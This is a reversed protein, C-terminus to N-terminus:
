HSLFLLAVSCEFISLGVSIIINPGLIFAFHRIQASHPLTPNPLNKGLLPPYAETRKKDSMVCGNAGEKAILCKLLWTDASVRHSM